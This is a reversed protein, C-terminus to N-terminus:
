VLLARIFDLEELRHQTRWWRVSLTNARPYGLLRALPATRSGPDDLALFEVPPFPRPLLRGTASEYGRVWGEWVPPPVKLWLGALCLLEVRYRVGWGAARALDTRSFPSTLAMAPDAEANGDWAPKAAVARADGLSFARRAAARRRSRWCNRLVSRLWAGLPGDGPRYLVIRPVSTDRPALVLALADEVFEDRDSKGAGKAVQRALRRVTPSLREALLRGAEASGSSAAGAGYAEILATLEKIAGQGPPGPTPGAAAHSM